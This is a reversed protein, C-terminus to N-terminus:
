KKKFHFLLKRPEATFVNGTLPVCDGRSVTSFSTTENVVVLWTDGIIMKDGYGYVSSDIYTATELVFYNEFIYNCIFLCIIGPICQLPKFPMKSKDCVRTDLNFVYM